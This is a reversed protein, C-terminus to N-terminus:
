AEGTRGWSCAWQGGVSRWSPKSPRSQRLPLPLCAMREPWSLADRWGCMVDEAPLDRPGEIGTGPRHSLYTRRQLTDRASSPM